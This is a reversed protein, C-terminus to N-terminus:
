PLKLHSLPLACHNWSIRPICNKRKLGMAKDAPKQASPHKEDNRSGFGFHDKEDDANPPDWCANADLNRKGYDDENALHYNMGGHEDMLELPILAYQGVLYGFDGLNYHESLKQVELVFTAAAELADNEHLGMLTQATVIKAEALEKAAAADLEFDVQFEDDNKFAVNDQQLQRIKSAIQQRQKGQMRAHFLNDDEEVEESDELGEREKEINFNDFRIGNKANAQEQLNGANVSSQQAPWEHM